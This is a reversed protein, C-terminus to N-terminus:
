NVCSVLEKELRKERDDEDIKPSFFVNRLEKTEKKSLFVSEESSHDHFKFMEFCVLHVRHKHITGRERSYTKPDRSNTDIDFKLVIM